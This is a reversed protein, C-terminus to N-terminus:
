TANIFDVVAHKHSVVKGFGKFLQTNKRNQTATGSSDAFLPFMVVPTVHVGKLLSLDMLGSLLVSISHGSSVCDQLAVGAITFGGTWSLTRFILSRTPLDYEVLINGHLGISTHTAPSIVLPNSGSQSGEVMAVKHLVIDSSGAITGALLYGDEEVDSCYRPSWGAPTSLDVKRLFLSLAWLVNTTNQTNQSTFLEYSGSECAILGSGPESSSSAFLAEGGCTIERKVSERVSDSTVMVATVFQTSLVISVHQVGKLAQADKIENFDINGSMSRHLLTLHNTSSSEIINHFTIGFQNTLLLYRLPLGSMWTVHNSSSSNTTSQIPIPDNININGDIRLSVTIVWLKDSNTYVILIDWEGSHQQEGHAVVNEVKSHQLPLTYREDRSYSGHVIVAISIVGQQSSSSVVVDRQTNEHPPLREVGVVVESGSDKVAPSMSYTGIDTIVIGMGPYYNGDLGWSLVTGKTFPKDTCPVSTLIRIGESRLKDTTSKYSNVASIGISLLIIITIGAICRIILDRLDHPNTLSQVHKAMTRGDDDSAISSSSETDCDQMTTSLECIDNTQHSGGTSQGTPEDGSVTAPRLRTRSCEM